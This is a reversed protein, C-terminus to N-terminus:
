PQSMTIYPLFWHLITFCNGELEFYILNLFCTLCFLSFSFSLFYFLISWLFAPVKAGKLCVGGNHPPGSQHARGVLCDSTLNRRKKRLPVGSMPFNMWPWIYGVPINRFRALATSPRRMLLINRCLRSKREHGGGRQVLVAPPSSVQSLNNPVELLAHKFSLSCGSRMESPWMAGAGPGYFGPAARITKQPGVGPADSARLPLFGRGLAQPTLSVCPCSGGGAARHSCHVRLGDLKEPAWWSLPCSLILIVAPLLPCPLWLCPEGIGEDECRKWAQGPEGGWPAGTSVQLKFAAWPGVRRSNLSGSM